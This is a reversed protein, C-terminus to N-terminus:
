IGQMQLTLKARTMEHKRVPTSVDIGAKSSALSFITRLLRSGPLIDNKLSSAM